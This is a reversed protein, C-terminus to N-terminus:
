AALDALPLAFQFTAGHDVNASASLRGGHAEIISRCISLGMGMGNPKTPYFPEFLREHQEASLGPGTDWVAVRVGDPETRATSIQLDRAGGALGSMAQIANIILNLMVQQLQVRDGHIRPLHDALHTQVTVNDKLVEGHTLGIVELVAENVDFAETRPANKRVLGHIRDIVDVARHTNKIMREVSCKAAEIEPPHRALRRLSADGGMVVNALPQKLEHAISATLQGMTAVRNAHALEAQAARLAESALVHDTLDRAVVLAAEVRESDLRLPSYTVVM